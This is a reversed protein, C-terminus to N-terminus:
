QIGAKATLSKKAEDLGELGYDVAFDTMLFIYDAVEYCKLGCMLSWGYKSAEKSGRYIAELARATMAVSGSFVQEATNFLNNSEIYHRAALNAYKQANELDGKKLFKDASALANNALNRRNVGLLYLNSYNDYKGTIKLHVLERWSRKPSPMQIVQKWQDTIFATLKQADETQPVPLKQSSSSVKPLTKQQPPAMKQLNENLWKGYQVQVGYGEFAEIFRIDNIDDLSIRWEERLSNFTAASYGKFPGLTPLEPLLPEVLFTFSFKWQIDDGYETKKVKDISKLWYKAIKVLNSGGTWGTDHASIIFPAM